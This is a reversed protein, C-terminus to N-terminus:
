TIVAAENYVTVVILPQGRDFRPQGAEREWMFKRFTCFRIVCFTRTTTFFLKVWYM